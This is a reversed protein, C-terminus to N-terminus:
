LAYFQTEITSIHASESWLMHWAVTISYLFKTIVTCLDTFVTCHFTFLMICFMALFTGQDTPLTGLNTFFHCYFLYHRRWVKDLGQFFLGAM